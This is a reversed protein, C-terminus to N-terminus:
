VNDGLYYILIEKKSLPYSSFKKIAKKGKKTILNKLILFQEIKKKDVVLYKINYKKILLPINSPDYEDPSFIFREMYPEIRPYYSFIKDDQKTNRKLWFAVDRIIKKEKRIPTLTQPIFGIIIISLIIYFSYARNKFLAKENIFKSLAFVGYAGWILTLPVLPLMIRPSHFFISLTLLYFICITLILKDLLLFKKLKIKFFLGLILFPFLLYNYARIFAFINSILDYIYKITFLFPHKYIFDFTVIKKERPGFSKDPNVKFSKNDIKIHMRNSFNKIGVTFVDYSKKSLVIHGKGKSISYIYPFTIISFFLLVLGIAFLGRFFSTKKRTISFLQWAVIIILIGLGEPRCLYALGSFFGAGLFSIIGKKEQSYWFLSIAIVILLIYTSETLVEVSYRTLMPHFAFFIGTIAAIRKGFQHHAIWILPLITLSSTIISVYIGANVWNNTLPYFWKLLYPYLPPYFFRYASEINDKYITQAMRIYYISDRSVLYYKYSVILRITITIFFLFLYLFSTKIKDKKPKLPKM